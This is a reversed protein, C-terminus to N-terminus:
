SFKVHRLSDSFNYLHSIKSCVKNARSARCDPFNRVIQSGKYQGNRQIYFVKFGVQLFFLFFFSFYFFFFCRFKLKIQAKNVVKRWCLTYSYVQGSRLFKRESDQARNVM